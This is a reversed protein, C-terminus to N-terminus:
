SVFLLLVFSESPFVAILFISNIDIMNKAKDIIKKKFDSDEEM